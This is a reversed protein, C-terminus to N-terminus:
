KRSVVKSREGRERHIAENDSTRDAQQQPELQKFEKKTLVEPGGSCVVRDAVGWLRDFGVEISKDGKTVVCRDDTCVISNGTSSM